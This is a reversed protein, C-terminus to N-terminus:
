EGSLSSPCGSSTSGRAPPEQGSASADTVPGPALPTGALPKAAGRGRRADRGLTRLRDRHLARHRAARGLQAARGLRREGAGPGFLSVIGWLYTKPYPWFAMSASYFAALGVWMRAVTVPGPMRVFQGLAALHPLSAASVFALRRPRNETRAPPLLLRVNTWRNGHRDEAQRAAGPRVAPAGTALGRTRPQSAAQAPMAGRRTTMLERVLRDIQERDSNDGQM